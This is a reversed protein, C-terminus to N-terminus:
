ETDPINVNNICIDAMEGNTFEEMKELVPVPQTADGSFFSTAFDWNRWGSQVRKV